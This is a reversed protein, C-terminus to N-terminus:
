LAEYGTLRYIDNWEKKCDNCKVTRAAYDSDFEPKGTSQIDMSECFPCQNGGKALYQENTLPM